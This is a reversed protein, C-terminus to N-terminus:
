RLDLDEVWEGVVRGEDLSSSLVLMQVREESENEPDLNADWARDKSEHTAVSRRMLKVIEAAQKQMEKQTKSKAADLTVLFLSRPIRIGSDKPPFRLNSKRTVEIISTPDPEPEKILTAELDALEEPSLSLGSYDLTSDPEKPKM